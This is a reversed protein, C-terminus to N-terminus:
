TMIGNAVLANIIANLKTIISDAQAQTTFGYPGVLNGNSDIAVTDSSSTTPAPGGSPEPTVSGTTGDLTNVRLQIGFLADYAEKTLTGNSDTFTMNPRIHPLKLSM